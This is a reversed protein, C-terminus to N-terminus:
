EEEGEECCTDGLALFENGTQVMRLHGGYAELLRETTFVEQASGFGLLRHNLLLVRDFREAAQDLDHTAIMVTVGRHRLEGLIDFIQEQSNIDLGNLPEDMLMLEAEQALARAIFMRQQQGGSLESIQRDAMESLGVDALAQHVFDWDRKKPWNLLGLKGIRGMMVVDAINVPFTWDVQSRQPVFAICIHGGPGGGFVDVQGSTPQLIGAIVKFLTSKGAGNPGVVAAREGTNLRFSVDELAVGADYHVSLNKIELIPSGLQHAAHQRPYVLKRKEKIFTM